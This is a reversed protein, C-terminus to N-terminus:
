RYASNSQKLTSNNDHYISSMIPLAADASFITHSIPRYRDYGQICTLTHAYQFRPTMYISTTPTAQDGSNFIYPTILIVRGIM